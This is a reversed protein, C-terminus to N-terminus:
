CKWWVLGRWQLGGKAVFTAITVSKPQGQELWSVTVTVKKIQENNSCVTLPCDEILSQASGGILEILRSDQIASQGNALNDYGQNRVEEIKKSAIDRALSEHKSGGILGLASPLNAMILVMFGVLVVVLMVEILSFGKQDM